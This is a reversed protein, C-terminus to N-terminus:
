SIDWTIIPMINNDITHNEMELRNTSTQTSKAWVMDWNKPEKSFSGCLLPVVVGCRHGLKM